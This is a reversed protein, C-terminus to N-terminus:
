QMAIWAEYARQVARCNGQAFFTSSGRKDKITCKAFDFDNDVITTANVTSPIALSSLLFVTSLVLNKM